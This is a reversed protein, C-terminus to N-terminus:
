QPCVAEFVDLFRAASALTEPTDQTSYTPLDRRLERCIARETESAGTAACASLLTLAAVMM